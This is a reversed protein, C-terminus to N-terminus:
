RRLWTASNKLLRKLDTQVDQPAPDPAYTMMLNGLPDVVFCRGDAGADSLDKTAAVLADAQDADLVRLDPHEPAFRAADAAAGSVLVRAIRDTEHGFTLRVQRLTVLTRACGAGCGQPAIVVVTWSDFLGLQAAGAVPRPPDVLVGKNTTDGHHGKDGYAYLLTAVLPTGLFALAVLAFQWRANRRATPDIPTM